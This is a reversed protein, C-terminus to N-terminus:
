STTLGRSLMFKGLPLPMSCGRQRPRRFSAPSCRLVKRGSTKRARNATSPPPAPASARAAAALPGTGPSDPSAAPYTSPWRLSQTTAPRKKFSGQVQLTGLTRAWRKKVSKPCPLRRAVSVNRTILTSANARWHSELSMSVRSPAFTNISQAEAHTAGM